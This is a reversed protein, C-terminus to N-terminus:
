HLSKNDSLREAQTESLLGATVWTLYCVLDVKMERRRESLTFDFNVRNVKKTRPRVVFSEDVRTIGFSLINAKM